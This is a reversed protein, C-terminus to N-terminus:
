KRKKYGKKSSNSKTSKKPTNRKQEKEIRKQEMKAAEEQMRKAIEQQQINAIVQEYSTYNGIVREKQEEPVLGDDLIKKTAAYGIHPKGAYFATSSIEDLLQWKYVDESIFLIDSHPYPIELAMKAYLYAMRPRNHVQRYLRAIQYLPEARIPRFEWADLFAQQIEPWPRNLIAVIIAIRYLSYYTEEEWGGMEVRKRYAEESKEWQKSDFYSQALYFQYRGNNPEYNPDDENTLASLLTEADKSYKEIPTTNVNRAGMTRARIFYDGHLKEQVSPTGEPKKCEAYEHLIGVYEWKSSLKFIQSRWWVFDDRGIRLTYADADMVTPYNFDGEIYDDADIVWAYDADSKEANRFAETRSAGFGKWDSQHIEGPIGKEEFFNKIIDQTGDTSGTDTIDYRNIYPYISNLCEEIIHSEDKVIMCLTIKKGNTPVKSEM